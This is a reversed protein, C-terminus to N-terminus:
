YEDTEVTKLNNYFLFNRKIWAQGDVLRNWVTCLSVKTYSKFLVYDTQINLFLKDYSNIINTYSIFASDM